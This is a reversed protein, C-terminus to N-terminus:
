FNLPKRWIKTFFRQCIKFYFIFFVHHCHNYTLPLPTSCLGLPLATALTSCQLPGTHDLPLEYPGSHCIPATSRPPRHNTRHDPPPTTSPQQGITPAPPLNDASPQCGITLTTTPPPPCHPRTWVVAQTSWVSSLPRTNMRGNFAHM